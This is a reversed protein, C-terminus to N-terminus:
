SRQQRSPIAVIDRLMGSEFRKRLKDIDEDIWKTSTPRYRSLVSRETLQPAIRHPHSPRIPPTGSYRCTRKLMEISKAGQDVGAMGGVSVSADPRVLERPEGWPLPQLYGKFGVSM